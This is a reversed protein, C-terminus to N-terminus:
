NRNGTTSWQDANSAMKILQAIFKDYRDDLELAIERSLHGCRSAFQLWCRTEEAESQSDTLKSAFHAPYRRKGWAESIAACVARSSRRIQDSLSYREEIPFRRSAESIEMGAEFATIDVDLERFHKM